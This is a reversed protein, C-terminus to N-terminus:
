SQLQQTLENKEKTYIQSIERMDRNMQEIQEKGLVNEKTLNEIQEAMGQMKSNNGENQKTLTKITIQNQEYIDKMEELKSSLLQKESLMKEHSSRSESLNAGAEKLSCELQNNQSGLEKMQDEKKQLQLEFESLQLM